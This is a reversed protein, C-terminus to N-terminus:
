PQSFSRGFNLWPGLMRSEQISVECLGDIQRLIHDLQPFTDKSRVWGGMPKFHNGHFIDLHHCFKMPHNCTNWEKFGWKIIAVPISQVIHFLQPIGWILQVLFLWTASCWFVCPYNGGFSNTLGGLHLSLLMELLAAVPCNEAWILATSQPTWCFRLQVRVEGRALLGLCYGGQFSVLLEGRQQTKRLDCVLVV